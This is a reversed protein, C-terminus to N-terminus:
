AQLWIVFEFHGDDAAARDTQDHRQQQRTLADGSCQQLLRGIDLGVQACRGKMRRREIQKVVDSKGSRKNLM